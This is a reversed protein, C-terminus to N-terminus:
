EAAKPEVFAKISIREKGTETNATVTITKTVQNKGSGNYTVQIEGKEGPAIPGDPKKPVTCGCTSKVNTVVLPVDGTNTFSFTYAQREGQPINGFDHVKEEFEMVAFKESNADREAAAEVNEAKVKKSANEECSTFSITAALAGIILLSKKM